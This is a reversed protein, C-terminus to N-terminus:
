VEKVIIQYNGRKYSMSRIVQSIDYKQLGWKKVILDTASVRINIAFGNKVKIKNQLDKIFIDTKFYYPKQDEPLNYLYARVENFEQQDMIISGHIVCNFEKIYGRNYNIVKM